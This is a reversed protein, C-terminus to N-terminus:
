PRPFFNNLAVKVGYAFSSCHEMIREEAEQRTIGTPLSLSMSKRGNEDILSLRFLDAGQYTLGVARPQKSNTM